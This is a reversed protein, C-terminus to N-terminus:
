FSLSDLIELSDAEILKLSGAEIAAFSAVGDRPYSISGPNLRIAGSETRYLIKRHTHGFLCLDGEGFGQESPPIHQMHIKLGFDKLCARYRNELGIETYDDPYDCNGAVALIKDAYERIFDRVEKEGGDYSGHFLDGLLLLRDPKLEEM